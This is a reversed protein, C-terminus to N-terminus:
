LEDDAHGEDPVAEILPKGKLFQQRLTEMQERLDDLNSFHQDFNGDMFNKGFFEKTFLSDRNFFGALDQDKLDGFREGFAAGFHQMISDMEENTLNQLSNDSSWSYISDYKIMNGNEDLEKDVKWTGKPVEKLPKHDNQAMEPKNKDQASCGTALLAAMSVIAYTKM